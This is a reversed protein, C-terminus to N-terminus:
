LQDKQGLSAPGTEGTSSWKVKNSIYRCDMVNRRTLQGLTRFVNITIRQNMSWEIRVRQINTRKYWVCTSKYYRNLTVKLFTRTIQKCTNVDLVQQDHFHWTKTNTAECKGPQAKTEVYRLSAFTVCFIELWYAPVLRWTLAEFYRLARNQILSDSICNISHHHVARLVGM